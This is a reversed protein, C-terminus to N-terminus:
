RLVDMHMQVLEPAWQKRHLLVFTARVILRALSMFKDLRLRDVGIWERGVTAWFCKLYLAAQADAQVHVLSALREALEQQIPTKDSM